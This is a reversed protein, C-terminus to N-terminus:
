LGLRRVPCQPINTLSCGGRCQILGYESEGSGPAVKRLPGNHSSHRQQSHLSGQRSSEADSPGNSLKTERPQPAAKSVSSGNRSRSSWEDERYGAGAYRPGYRSARDHSRDDSDNELTNLRENMRGDGSRRSPHRQEDRGGRSDYPHLRNGRYSQNSHGHKSMTGQHSPNTRDTYYQRFCHRYM